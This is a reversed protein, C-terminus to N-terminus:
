DRIDQLFWETPIERGVSAAKAKRYVLGGVASFQLGQNGLNHYFTIQTDDTRGPVKGTVLDCYDPYDGGFGGQTTKAPLRRMEEPTGAVFAVPSHGREAMVRESEPLKLGGSGQRIKVDCRALVESSIERPGLMTVHMGPELWGAEFTPSMSDTCTALIDVGRVAERATDVPEVPIGLTESMEKAFRIRNAKTPSFVKVHRIPRVVQFGELYTRAMGGSGLIGVTQADDRALHKAGIGAGGGVRMHQLVGDNIFALPEGNRTSLLLILGAYTGPQMCYKSERWQGDKGVPWTVVDSKMRMALIGDSTGEVTSWRYYGDDRECPVYMDLRPRQIAGGSPVQRFAHEQAEICERMTLLKAVVDNHIFLM